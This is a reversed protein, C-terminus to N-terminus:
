DIESSIQVGHTLPNLFSFTGNELCHKADLFGVVPNKERVVLLIEVPQVEEFAAANVFYVLHGLKSRSQRM